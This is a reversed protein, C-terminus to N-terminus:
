RCLTVPVIYHVPQHTPLMRSTYETPKTRIEALVRAVGQPKENIEETGVLFRQSLVETLGSGSGEV